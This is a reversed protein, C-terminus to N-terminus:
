NLYDNATTTIALFPLPARLRGVTLSIFHVHFVTVEQRISDYASPLQITLPSTQMCKVDHSDFFSSFGGTCMDEDVNDM